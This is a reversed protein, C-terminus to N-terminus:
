CVLEMPKGMQGIPIKGGIKVSFFRIKKCEFDLSITCNGM